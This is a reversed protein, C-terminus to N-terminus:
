HLDWLFRHLGAAASLTQPPRYWYVPVPATTPDAREIPDDSAYRRVLRGAADLIELTVRGPADAALMYDIIAGDPPNVGAAEDPPIPTDTNTNQRVRYAAQPKFLVASQRSGRAIQRLPTIDDLIWIGRGHTGAILDDGKVIVDRISTAPMNMRLSQWHEGDDFSVHVEHETGAFLLGKRKPDERVADVPAGDPLGNTIRTWTKGGDHTRFVHPRLDDLRLPNIAAYADQADFHGADVISVKMW